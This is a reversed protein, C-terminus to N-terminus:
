SEDSFFAEIFAERGAEVIANVPQEVRLLRNSADCACCHYSVSDARLALFQMLCGFCLFADCERCRRAYHRVSNTVTEGGALDALVMPTYDTLCAGCRLECVGLAENLQEALVSWALSQRLAAFGATFSERADREFAEQAERLEVLRRKQHRYNELDAGCRKGRQEEM